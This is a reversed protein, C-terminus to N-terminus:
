NYKSGPLRTLRNKKVFEQLNGFAEDRRCDLGYNFGDAFMPSSDHGNDLSADLHELEFQERM